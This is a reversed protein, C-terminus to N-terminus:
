RYAPGLSLVSKDENLEMTTLNSMVVLVGNDINNSGQSRDTFMTPYGEGPM